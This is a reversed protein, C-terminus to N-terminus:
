KFLKLIKEKNSKPKEVTKNNGNSLFGDFFEAIKEDIYNSLREELKETEEVENTEEIEEEPEKIEEKPEKIEEKDSKKLEEIQAKLDEIEKLLDEM